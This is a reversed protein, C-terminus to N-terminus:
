KNNSQFDITNINYILADSLFGPFVGEPTEIEKGVENRLVLNFKQEDPYIGLQSYFTDYLTSEPSIQTTQYMGPEGIGPLLFNSLKNADISVFFYKLYNKLEEPDDPLIDAQAKVVDNDPLFAMVTEGVIFTMVEEGNINEVLGAKKMLKWFESYNAELEEALSVDVNGLVNDLSYTIGNFYEGLKVPQFPETTNAECGVGGDFVTVYSLGKKTPYIKKQSFDTIKNQLVIHKMALASIEATNLDKYKETEDDWLQIKEDGLVDAKGVDVQYGMAQLAEDTPAFLTFRVDPNILQIIEGAKNLIETFISYNPDNLLPATVSRFMAPVTVKDTGYFVGNSCFEKVEAGDVDFDYVDGYSSKVRKEKLMEPLVLARSQIHNGLLFSLQLLPIDDFTPYKSFYDELFVTLAQDNPIFSNFTNGCALYLNHLVANEQNFTWQSAIKPLDKHFYLFLSDGAAAYKASLDKNYTIDTFKDYLQKFLSYHNDQDELVNYVTRMPRIVDDVLYVYGNDTLLGNGNEHIKANAACFNDDGEWVKGPFFYSYNYTYDQVGQTKFLNTNLVPLYKEREYVTMVAGTKPNTVRRVAEQGYTIHKFYIGKNATGAELDGEPRFNMFDVPRYSYRVIHCGILLDLVDQPIDDVSSWGNNELYANVAQNDPAFVSCLGQGKVLQFFSSKELASVFLSYDAQGQLVEYASGKLWTPREYHKDMENECGWLSLLFLLLMLLRYSMNKKM